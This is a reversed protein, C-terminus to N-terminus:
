QFLTGTPLPVLLYNSFIWSLFTVAIVSIGFSSTVKGKRMVTMLLTTAITSTIWFGIFEAFLINSIPISIVFIFLVLNRITLQPTIQNSDRQRLLGILTQATILLGCPFLIMSILSPFTGPGVPNDPLYPFDVATFYVYASIIMLGLGWFLEALNAQIPQENNSSM